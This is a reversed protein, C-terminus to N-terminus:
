NKTQRKRELWEDLRRNYGADDKLSEIFQVAKERTYGARALVRIKKELERDESTM